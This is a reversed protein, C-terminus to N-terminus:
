LTFIQYITYFFLLLVTIIVVMFPFNREEVEAYEVKIVVKKREKLEKLFAFLALALIYSLVGGNLVGGSFAYLYSFNKNPDIPPFSAHLILLLFFWKCQPPGFLEWAEKTTTIVHDQSIFSEIAHWAKFSIYSGGAVGVGLGVLFVNFGLKLRDIYSAESWLLAILPGALIFYGVLPRFNM